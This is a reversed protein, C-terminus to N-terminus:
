FCYRLGISFKLNGTTETEFTYGENKLEQIRNELASDDLIYILDLDFGFSKTIGLTLQQGLGISLGNFRESITESYGEVYLMGTSGYYASVRPRWKYNGSRLFLKSGISYMPTIVIGTGIGATLYLSKFLSIDGNFGLVGYPLGFGAGISGKSKFTQETVGTISETPVTTTSGQPSLLLVQRKDVSVIRAQQTKGDSTQVFYYTNSGIKVNKFIDGNAENQSYLSLCFFMLSILSISKFTKM